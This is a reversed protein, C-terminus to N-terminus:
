SKKVDKIFESKLESFVDKVIAKVSSKQVIDKDKVVCNEKLKSVETRLIKYDPLFDALSKIDWFDSDESDHLQGEEM